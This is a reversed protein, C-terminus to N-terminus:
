DEALGVILGLRREFPAFCLRLRRKRDIGPQALRQDLLVPAIDATLCARGIDAAHQRDAEATAGVPHHPLDLLRALLYPDAHEIQREAIRAGGIGIAHHRLDLQEAGLHQRADALDSSPCFTASGCFRGPLWNLSPWTSASPKRM